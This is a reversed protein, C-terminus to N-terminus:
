PSVNLVPVFGALLGPYFSPRSLAHAVTGIDHWGDAEDWGEALVIANLGRSLENWDPLLELFAHVDRKTM